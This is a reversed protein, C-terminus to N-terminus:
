DIVAKSIGLNSSGLVKVINVLLEYEEEPIEVFDLVVTNEEPITAKVRIYVDEKRYHEVTAKIIGYIRKTINPDFLHKFILRVKHSVYTYETNSMEKEKEETIEPTINGRALETEYKIREAERARESEIRAEEERRLREAEAALEAEKQKEEAMAREEEARKQAMTALIAAEALREKERNEAKIRAELEEKLQRQEKEKAAALEDKEQEIRIIREALEKNKEALIEYERRLRENEEIAQESDKALELPEAEDAEESEAEVAEDEEVAAEGDQESNVTLVLPESIEWEPILEADNEGDAADNVGAETLEEENEETRYSAGMVAERAVRMAEIYEKSESTKPIEEVANENVQPIQGGLQSLLSALKDHVEAARNSLEAECVTKTLDGRKIARKIVERWETINKRGMATHYKDTNTRVLFRYEKERIKQSVDEGLEFTVDDKSVSDCVSYAVASNHRTWKIWFDRAGCSKDTILLRRYTVNESTHEMYTEPAFVLHLEINSGSIGEVSMARSIEGTIQRAMEDIFTQSYRGCLFTKDDSSAVVKLKVYGGEYYIARGSLVSAFEAPPQCIEFDINGNGVYAYPNGKEFDEQNVGWSIWETQQRDSFVLTLPYYWRGELMLKDSIYDEYMQVGLLEDGYKEALEPLLSEAFSLSFKETISDAIIRNHLLEVNM